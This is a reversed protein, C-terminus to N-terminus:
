QEGAISKVPPESRQAQVSFRDIARVLVHAVGSGGFDAGRPLDDEYVLFLTMAKRPSFLMELSSQL